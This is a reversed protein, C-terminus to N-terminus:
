ISSHSHLLKLLYNNYVYNGKLNFHGDYTWYLSSLDINNASIYDSFDSFVGGLEVIYKKLGNYDLATM